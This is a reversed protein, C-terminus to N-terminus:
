RLRGGMNGRMGRGPWELVQWCQWGGTHTTPAVHLSRKNPHDEMPLPMKDSALWLCIGLVLLATAFLIMM